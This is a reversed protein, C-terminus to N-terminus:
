FNKQMVVTTQHTGDNTMYQTEFKFDNPLYQNSLIKKANIDFLFREEAGPVYGPSSGGQYGIGTEVSKDKDYEKKVSARVGYQKGLYQHFVVTTELAGRIGEKLFPRDVEVYVTDFLKQFEAQSVVKLPTNVNNAFDRQDRLDYTYTSSIDANLNTGNNLKKGISIGANFDVGADFMTKTGDPSIMIQTVERVGVHGQLKDKDNDILDQTRYTLSLPTTLALTNSAGKLYRTSFEAGDLNEINSLSIGYKAEIEGLNIDKIKQLATSTGEIYGGYIRHDSTEGIFIGGSKKGDKGTYSVKSVPFSRKDFNSKQQEDIKLVESIIIGENTLYRGVIGKRKDYYREFVGVGTSSFRMSAIKDGRATVVEGYNIKSVRNKDKPDVCSVITHGSYAGVTFGTSNCDIGLKELEEEIAYAIDSCVGVDKNYIVGQVLQEKTVRTPTSGKAIRKDDYNKLFKNGIISAFLLKEDYTLIKSYHKLSSDRDKASYDKSFYLSILDDVNKSDFKKFTDTPNNFDFNGFNYKILLSFGPDIVANGLSTNNDRRKQDDKDSQCITPDKLYNFDESLEGSKVILDGNTSSIASMGAINEEINKQFLYKNNEAVIKLLPGLKAQSVPLVEGRCISFDSSLCVILNILLLFLIVKFM